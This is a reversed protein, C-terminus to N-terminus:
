KKKGAKRVLRAADKERQNTKKERAAEAAEEEARDKEQQLFAERIKVEQALLESEVENISVMEKEIKRASLWRTLIWSNNILNEYARIKLIDAFVARTLTNIASTQNDCRQHLVKLEHIVQADNMHKGIKTRNPNTSEGEAM